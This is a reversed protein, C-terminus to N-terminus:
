AVEPLIIRYEEGKRLVARIKGILKRAIAVIARKKGTKNNNSIRIFDAHLSADKSIARWACEVLVHRLRSSGQRSIHGLHRHEGTSYECPTLGVFSFLKSQSSFQSMDGLENSLIRSSIRGIGPVSLYIKELEDKEGQEKLKAEMLKIQNNIEEWLFCFSNICIGLEKHIGDSLLERVFSLSLVKNYGIPFLNFQHLKMRIQNMIRQRKALLQSRTRSYQRKLEESLSPVRIAKLRAVSLQEALKKSDRKDTKVRDRSAIEVSSANVVINKIGELELTRHLEFGSFGAEYVSFIQAGKFFKNLSMSLEMPRGVMSFKKVIEGDCISTVVYSHRHVDIGVFVKKDIYSIINGM